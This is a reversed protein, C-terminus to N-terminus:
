RGHQRDQEDALAHFLVEGGVLVNLGQLREGVLRRLGIRRAVGELVGGAVRHELVEGRSLLGEGHAGNGRLLGDLQEARVAAAVCVRVRCM